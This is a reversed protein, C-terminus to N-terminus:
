HLMIMKGQTKIARDLERAKGMTIKNLLAWFHPGHNMEKTHALEHLIIYDILHDPMRMLHINLNINEKSSCSGWKSKLNKVYVQRFNFGHLQALENVRAPLYAKAERRCVEGIIKRIFRTVRESDVEEAAPITVVVQAQKLVGRLTGKEVSVIQITHFKTSITQNLHFQEKSIKAKEQQKKIWEINKLIFAHVEKEATMWPYNASVTGDPKVRLSLRVSGKRRTLLVNGIGEIHFNSIAM